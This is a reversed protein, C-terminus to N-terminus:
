TVLAPTMHILTPVPATFAQTLADQLETLTSPQSAEAGYARALALFDPNRAIVANPAIQSRVMADKIEALEANDWVLIPLSLGLEVATGLEPLTYQLGYDGLIAVTPQGPRAVAGGIAAPLAYGLTGFGFPHHWHGPRPMDWIEKAAYAFQTMDSYIMADDPTVARLADCIAPIGPREADIEARWRARTKAVMTADWCPARDGTRAPIAISIDRLFAGADGLIAMDGAGCEALIEPDIDVRLMPCRHGLTDRWLDVASLETGVAIVLDAKAAIEASSPRALFAGFFMPHDSRVLGRGAYTVFAAAGTQRLVDEVADAGAVTGGGFIFLPREASLIAQIAAYVDDHSASPPKQPAPPPPPAEAAAGLTAIGVHLAKPRPRTSAFEALARDVLAYAAEAGQAELSWECVTAAAGVQDRMQHLQGRKAATEDLCSAIALVPVSDSYAQGLATMANCLGPGTILYCVAPRGSARAYGDAMFAAGQEHRALVHFIGAEEIGRYLEINHVGPIGFIVEVGRAKLMHSIQAGLPQQM